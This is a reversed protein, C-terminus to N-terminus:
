RTPSEECAVLRADVLASTRLATGEHYEPIRLMELFAEKSPYRVVLVSDWEGDEGIVVSRAEGHFIVNGGVQSLFPATTALYDDYLARGGDPKFRLLNLMVIPGALDSTVLAKIQRGTPDIPM